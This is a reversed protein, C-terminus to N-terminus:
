ESATTEGDSTAGEKGECISDTSAEVEASIHQATTDEGEPPELSDEVLSEKGENADEPVVLVDLESM